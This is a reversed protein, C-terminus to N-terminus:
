ARAEFEEPDLIEGVYGVIHPCENSVLKPVFTTRKKCDILDDPEASEALELGYGPGWFYDKM